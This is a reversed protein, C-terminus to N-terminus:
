QTKDSHVKAHAWVRPDSGSILMLTEVYSRCKTGLRILVYVYPKRRSLYWIYCPAQSIRMVVIM